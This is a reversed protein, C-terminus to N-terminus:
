GEERTYHRRDNEDTYFENGDEDYKYKIGTYGRRDEARPFLAEVPIEGFEEHIYYRGNRKVLGAIEADPDGDEAKCCEMGSIGALITNISHCKGMHNLHCEVCRCEPFQYERDKQFVDKIGFSSEM